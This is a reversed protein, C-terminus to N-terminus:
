NAGCIQKPKGKCHTLFYVITHIESGGFDVDDDFHDSVTQCFEINKTEYLCQMLYQM